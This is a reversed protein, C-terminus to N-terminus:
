ASIWTTSSTKSASAALFIPMSLTRRGPGLREQATGSQVLAPRTSGRQMQLAPQGAQSTTRRKSCTPWTHMMIWEPLLPRPWWTAVSASVAMSLAMARSLMGVLSRWSAQARMLEWSPWTRLRGTSTICGAQQEGPPFM